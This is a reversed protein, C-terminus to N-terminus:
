GKKPSGIKQSIVDYVFIGISGAIVFLMGCLVALCLLRYHSANILAGDYRYSVFFNLDGKKMPEGNALLSGGVYADHNGTDYRLFGISRDQNGHLCTITFSYEKSVIPEEVGELTFYLYDMHYASKGGFVTNLLIRGTEDVLLLEYEADPEQVARNSVRVALRNFPQNTTFTQTLSNGETLNEPEGASYSLQRIAFSERRVSLETFDAKHSNMETLVAGCLIVLAIPGALSGYRLPLSLKRLVCALKGCEVLGVAGLAFLLLTFSLSYQEGTEWLVHFFVGGLFNLQLLHLPELLSEGRGKRGWFLWILAGLFAFLLSFARMIQMLLVMFDAADKFLYTHLGNHGTYEELNTQYTDTGDVWMRQMKVGALSLCGRM